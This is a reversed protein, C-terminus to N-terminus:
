DHGMSHGVAWPYGETSSVVEGPKNHHHDDTSKSEGHTPVSISDDIRTILNAVEIAGSIARYKIYAPELTGTDNMDAVKNNNLDIGATTNGNDHRTRLGVLSDIPDMGASQALTKPVIELADAVTKIALQERGSYTSAISRLITALEIEVAGGGPVLSEDEIALKLVYFCTDLKRKTEEAVRETGGRLLLSVQDFEDFGSVIILETSGMFRREVTASHGVASLSLNEMTVPQAGTARALKHLEDERTREIALVGDKELQNKVADDIAQQCFVVDAGMATISKAYKNYKGDEYQRLEQLEDPSEPEVAGIGSPTSISMPEDILAITAENYSLSSQGDSSIIATPSEDTDIALGNIVETDYYSGGPVTKRTIKGFNVHNESEIARVAEVATESLFDTGSEDWKGTIVTRAINKLETDDELDTELTLKPLSNKIKTSAINFGEVIKTPHVGQERLSSAKDLLTGALLVTTTTGDGAGTDQQKAVEFILRAAPHEIDLRDLINAGDNTVIMKGGSTVLLKDLGKPGLTTRVIEALQKAARANEKSTDIDERESDSILSQPSNRKGFM